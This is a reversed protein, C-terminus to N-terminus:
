FYTGLGNEPGNIIWDVSSMLLGHQLFVPPRNARNKNLKGTPIRHVTLLYGDDTKVEHVEVPYGYKTIM